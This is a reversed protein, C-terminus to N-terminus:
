LRVGIVLVDDVQDLEGKWNELYDELYTGQLTMPKDKIELLV